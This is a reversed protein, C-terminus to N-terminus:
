ALLPLPRQAYVGPPRRCQAAGRYSATAGVVATLPGSQTTILSFSGDAATVVADEGADCFGNDNVDVCVQAGQYAVPQATWVVSDSTTSHTYDVGSKSSNAHGTPYRVAAGIVRGQIPVPTASGGGTTSGGTTGGGGTPGGGTTSGGTTSGGSSDSGSSGGCGALLIASLCLAPLARRRFSAPIAKM